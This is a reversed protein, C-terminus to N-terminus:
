CFFASFLSPCSGYKAELCVQAITAASVLPVVTGCDAAPTTSLIQPQVSLTAPAPAAPAPAMVGLKAQLVALQQTRKPLM